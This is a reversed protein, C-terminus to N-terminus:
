SNGEVKLLVARDDGHNILRCWEGPALVVADGPSMIEIGGEASAAGATGELLVVVTGSVPRFRATRGGAAIFIKRTSFRGCGSAQDALLAESVGIAGEEVIRVPRMGPRRLTIM